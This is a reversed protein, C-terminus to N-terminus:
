RWLPAVIWEWLASPQTSPVSFASRRDLSIVANQFIHRRHANFTQHAMAVRRRMEKRHDGRHHLVGGLHVYEGVVSIQRTSHEGIVTMTGPSNPGFFQSKRRRSGRGKLAFLLATKGKQLNPRMAHEELTDLLISSVVGAKQIAADANDARLVVTLDDMWVPGSYVEWSSEESNGRRFPDFQPDIQVYEQLEQQQLRNHFNELVRSFLFTFVVDAFSDGPRTGVTTRCIDIQGPMQFFTDSHIAQLVQQATMTMGAKAIASPDALHAHLQHLADDPLHLKRALRAIEEDSYENGLALLRLVRYFAEVLDVMLLVASHGDAAAARLYARAEHLGLTVPVHRKGGLQSRMMYKELLDAQTQRITRHLAKGVHSSVLLSRYAKPDCLPGKGKHAPYLIGGKHWLTEQGHLFLKLLAGYNQRALERPCAGCLESPLQDLGSAKKCPVRRFAMELDTLTPLGTIKQDIHPRAFKQLNTRWLQWQTSADLRSGGEMDGFFRIWRDLAQAPLACKEGDEDEIIPLTKRKLHRLNTPGIHEKITQLIMNASASDPLEQLSASLAYKRATQLQQKMRAALHIARIGLKLRWCSITVMYHQYRGALDGQSIRWALLHQGHEFSHVCPRRSPEVDLNEWNSRARWNKGVFTGFKRRSSPSKPAAAARPAISPWAIEYLKTTSMFIPIFTLICLLHQFQRLVMLFAIVSSRTAILISRQM